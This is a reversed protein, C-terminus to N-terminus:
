EDEGGFLDTAKDIAKNGVKVAVGKVDSTIDDEDEMVINHVVQELSCRAEAALKNLVSKEGVFKGWAWGVPRQATQYVAKLPNYNTDPFADVVVEVDDMMKEYKELRTLVDNIRSETENIEEVFRDWKLLEPHKEAVDAMKRFMKELGKCARKCGNMSKLFKSVVPSVERKYTRLTLYKAREVDIDVFDEAAEGLRTFNVSFGENYFKQSKNSLEDFEQRPGSVVEKKEKPSYWFDSHTDEM